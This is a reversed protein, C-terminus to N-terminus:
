YGYGNEKECKPCVFVPIERYDLSDWDPRFVMKTTRFQHKQCIFEPISEGKIARRVHKPTVRYRGEKIVNGIKRNEFLTSKGNFKVKTYDKGIVYEYEKNDIILKRM